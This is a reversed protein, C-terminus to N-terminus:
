RNLIDKRHKEIAPIVQEILDNDVNSEQLSKQVCKIMADFHVDSLGAVVAEKHARRMTKGTYLSNGGFVYTLFANMKREQVQVDINKFFSSLLDNKLINVYLHHSTKQVIERGGIKEYLTANM